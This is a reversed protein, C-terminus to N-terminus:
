DGKGAADVAQAMLYHYRANGPKHRLAATLYCRAKLYRRRRLMIEALRVVAEEAIQPRLQQLNTLRTLLHQADFHRGLDSYRRARELVHDALNLTRGMASGGHLSHWRCAGCAFM